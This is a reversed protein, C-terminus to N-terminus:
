GGGPAASGRPTRILMEWRSGWASISIGPL